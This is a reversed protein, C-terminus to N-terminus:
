LSERSRITNGFAGLNGLSKSLFNPARDLALSSQNGPKLHDIPKLYSAEVRFFLDM